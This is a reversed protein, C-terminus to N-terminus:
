TKDKDNNAPTVTSDDSLFIKAIFKYYWGNDFPVDPISIVLYVHRLVAMNEFQYFDPDTVSFRDYFTNRYLFNAKTRPKEPPASLQSIRLWPTRVLILSRDVDPMDDETLYYRANSYIAEHREAPHVKLVDQITWTRLKEFKVSENIRVNEPQYAIPTEQQIDVRVCDLVSCASGDTCTMHADTLAGHSWQESSTLRVWQGTHADVGAVCYGGRKTSKTLIVIDRKVM